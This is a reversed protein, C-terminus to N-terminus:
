RLESRSDGNKMFDHGKSLSYTHGSAVKVM